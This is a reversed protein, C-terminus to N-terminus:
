APAVTLLLHDFGAPQGGRGTLREGGTLVCGRWDTGAPALLYTGASLKPGTGAAGLRCLTQSATGAPGAGHEV